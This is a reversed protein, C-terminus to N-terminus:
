WGERNRIRVIFDNMGWYVKQRVSHYTAWVRDIEGTLNDRFEFLYIREYWERGYCLEQRVSFRGPGLFKDTALAKNQVRVWQNVKRQRKDAM